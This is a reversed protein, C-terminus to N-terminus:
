GSSKAGASDCATSHGNLAVRGEPAQAIAPQLGQYFGQGQVHVFVLRVAPFFAVYTKPTCVIELRYLVIGALAKV